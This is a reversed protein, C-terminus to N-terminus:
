PESGHLTRLVICQVHCVATLLVTCAHYPGNHMEYQPEHYLKSHVECYMALRSPRFCRKAHFTGNPACVGLVSSKVTRFRECVRPSRVHTLIHAGLATAIKSRIARMGQACVRQISLDPRDLASSRGCPEICLGVNLTSVKAPGHTGCVTLKQLGLVFFLRKCLPGSLRTCRDIASLDAQHTKWLSTDCM